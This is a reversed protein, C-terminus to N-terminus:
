QLCRRVTQSCQACQAHVGIPPRKRQGTVDGGWHDNAADAHCSRGSDRRMANSAVEIPGHYARVAARGCVWPSRPLFAKLSAIAATHAHNGFTNVAVVIKADAATQRLDTIRAGRRRSM